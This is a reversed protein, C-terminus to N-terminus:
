LQERVGAENSIHRTQQALDGQMAEIGRGRRLVPLVTRRQLNEVELAAAVYAAAAVLALGVIAAAHGLATSATLEHLGTLLFRLSTLMLVAAPALKGMASGLACILVWAAAALLFVGLPRSTHHPPTLLLDIGVILWTAGQVGFGTAAVTDRGLFGFVSAILQLPFSFAILVIAIMPRDTSTFWGLEMGAVLLSATALALFGLPFPTAIPRLVIRTMEPASTQAAVNRASSPASSM